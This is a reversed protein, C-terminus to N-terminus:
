QFFPFNDVGFSIIYLKTSFIVIIRNSQRFLFIRWLEEIITQQDSEVLLPWLMYREIAFGIIVQRFWAIQLQEIQIFRLRIILFRLLQFLDTSFVGRNEKSKSIKRISFKISVYIFSLVHPQPLLLVSPVFNIEQEIPFVVESGHVNVVFILMWSIEVMGFLSEM